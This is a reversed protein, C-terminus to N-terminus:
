SQKRIAMVTRMVTVAFGSLIKKRGIMAKHM